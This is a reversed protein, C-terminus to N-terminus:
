KSELDKLMQSITKNNRPDVFESHIDALPKLVFWRTEIRPHPIQLSNRETNFIRKDDHDKTVTTKKHVENMCKKGYYLIDLDMTRPGDKVTRVRGLKREIEQLARYLEDPSFTTKIEWVTNLFEGQKPGGVPKTEYIPASQIFKIQSHHKLLKQANRISEERNGLNSGVGIFCQPM